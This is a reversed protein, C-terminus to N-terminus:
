LRIFAKVAPDACLAELDAASPLQPRDRESAVVCFFGLPETGDARFQHWALPPVIVADLAKVADIEAGVLCRGAGRGILVFHGHEHRELTSHGGPAVEFYRLEAFLDPSGPSLVQRTVQRFHTGPEEKYALLEVGDWRYDGRHRVVGTM